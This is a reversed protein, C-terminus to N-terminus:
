IPYGINVQGDALVTVKSLEVRYHSKRDPLMEMLGIYSEGHLVKYAKTREEHPCLRLEHFVDGFAHQFKNYLDTPIRITASLGDASSDLPLLYM